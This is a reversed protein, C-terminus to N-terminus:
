PYYKAKPVMVMVDGSIIPYYQIVLRGGNPIDIVLGLYVNRGGSVRDLERDDLVRIDQAMIWDGDTAPARIM